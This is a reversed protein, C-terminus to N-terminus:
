PSSSSSSSETLRELEALMLTRQLVTPPQVEQVLLMELLSKRDFKIRLNLMRIIFQVNSPEAIIHGLLDDIRDMSCAWKGDHGLPIWSVVCRAGRQELCSVYSDVTVDNHLGEERDIARHSAVRKAVQVGWAPDALLRRTHDATAQDFDRPSANRAVIAVLAERITAAVADALSVDGTAKKRCQPFNFAVFVGQCDDAEHEAREYGNSPHTNDVSVM